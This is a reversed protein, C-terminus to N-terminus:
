AKSYRSATYFIFVYLLIYSNVLPPLVGGIGAGPMKYSFFVVTWATLFGFFRVGSLARILVAGFAALMVAHIWFFNRGFVYISESVVGGLVVFFGPSGREVGLVIESIEYNIRAGDIQGFLAKPLPLTLLWAFYKDLNVHQGSEIIILGADRTFSTQMILITEVSSWVGKFEYEGGLRVVMWYELWVAVVPTVVFAFVILRRRVSPFEMFYFISITLFYLMVTGRAIYQKDAYQLYLVCFVLFFVLPPRERFRYLLIFFFPLILIRLYQLVAEGGGKEMPEFRAAFWAKIDPPRIEFLEFLRFDPYIFSSLLLGYFLILMGSVFKRSVCFNEAYNIRNWVVQFWNGSVKWVFVFTLVYLVLFVFHYEAFWSPVDYYAVAVGSNIFLSAQMLALAARPWPSKVMVLSLVLILISAGLSLLFVFQDIM